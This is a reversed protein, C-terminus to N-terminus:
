KEALAKLSALGSEFEKGIMKDMDIFVCMVKSIFPMPGFISWTLRTGSGEPVLTFEVTNHGEMPKTMDLALVLKNPPVTDLVTLSGAGVERNGEFSYVSGKGKPPGSRSRKLNPDKKEFPSWEKGRDLDEVIAYVKEPPAQIVTSRQVRFTNPQTAAYALVGAIAVVVVIVIAKVM